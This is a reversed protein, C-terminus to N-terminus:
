ALPNCPGPKVKPSSGDVGFDYVDRVVPRAPEMSGQGDPVRAQKRDLDFDEKDETSDPGSSIPEQPYLLLEFWQPYCIFISNLIAFFGTHLTCFLINRRMFFKGFDNFLFDSKELFCKKELYTLVRKFHLPDLFPLM